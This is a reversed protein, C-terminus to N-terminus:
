KNGKRIDLPEIIVAAAAQGLLTSFSLDRDGSFSSVM